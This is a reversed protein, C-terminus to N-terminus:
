EIKSRNGQYHKPSKPCKNEKSVSMEDDYDERHFKGQKIRVKKEKSM